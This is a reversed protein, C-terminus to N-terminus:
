DKLSCFIEESFSIEVYQHFLILYSKIDFHIHNKEALLCITLSHCKYWWGDFIWYLLHLCFVITQEEDSDYRLMQLDLFDCDDDYNSNGNRINFGM